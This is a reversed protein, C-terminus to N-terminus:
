AAPRPSSPHPVATRHAATWVAADFMLDALRPHHDFPDATSVDCSFLEGKGVYASATTAAGLVNFTRTAKGVALVGYLDGPAPRDPIVWCVVVAGYAAPARDWVVGTREVVAGDKDFHSWTIRAGATLPAPTFPTATM